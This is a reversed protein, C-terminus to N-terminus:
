HQAKRRESNSAFANQYPGAHSLSWYSSELYSDVISSSSILSMENADDM